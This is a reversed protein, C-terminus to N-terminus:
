PHREFFLIFDTVKYYRTISKSVQKVAEATTQKCSSCYWTHRPDDVEKDGITPKHCEQHYLEHCECCEILRNGPAVSM